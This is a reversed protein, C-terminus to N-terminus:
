VRLVKRIEEASAVGRMMGLIYPWGFYLILGGAVGSIVVGALVGWGFSSWDWPDSFFEKWEKIPDSEV